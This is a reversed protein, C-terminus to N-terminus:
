AVNANQTKSRKKAACNPCVGNFILDGDELKAGIPVNLARRIAAYDAGIDLIEGCKRCILHAHEKQALEFVQREGAIALERVLGRETLTALNNYVTSLSLMPQLVKLTQYITEITLHGRKSLESMLMLRQPTAKLGCLNLKTKYNM